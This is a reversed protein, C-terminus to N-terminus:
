SPKSVAELVFASSAEPIWAPHIRKLLRSTSYSKKSFGYLRRACAVEHLFRQDIITLKRAGDEEPCVHSFFHIAPLSAVISKSSQPKWDSVYDGSKKKGLLTDCHKVVLKALSLWKAVDTSLSRDGM